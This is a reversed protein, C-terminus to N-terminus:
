EERNKLEQREAEFEPIARKHSKLCGDPATVTGRYRLLVLVGQLKGPSDPGMTGSGPNHQLSHAM